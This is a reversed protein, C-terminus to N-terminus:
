LIGALFTKLQRAYESGAVIPLDNHGADPVVYFSKPDSALEFLREGLRFPVIEDRTGHIFLKACSIRAIKEASNFHVNMLPQLLGIPFMTKAMDRASTFTSQLVLGTVPFDAALHVAVAGGLSEGFLVIKEGSPKREATWWDWAALADLYLGAEHPEGESKGYGRYDIILIHVGLDNLIKLWAVRDGINGGNGHFILLTCAAGEYPIFWGHLTVNDKTKLYIDQFSLGVIGPDYRIRHTPYYVFLRELKYPTMVLGVIVALMAILLWRRLVFKGARKWFGKMATAWHYRAFLASVRLKQL